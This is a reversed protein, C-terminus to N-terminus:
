KKYMKNKEVARKANHHNSGILWLNDDSDSGGNIRQTKHDVTGQKDLDRTGRELVHKIGKEKCLQCIGQDRAWIRDVTTKWTSSQYFPDKHLKHGQSKQKM